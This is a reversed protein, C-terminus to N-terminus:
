PSRREGLPLQAARDTRHSSRAARMVTLPFVLYSWISRPPRVGDLGVDPFEDPAPFYATGFMRDWISFIPAFNKGFHRPEISHHIRHFRSDVIIRWLPGLNVRTPSHILIAWISILFSAAFPLAYSDLRILSFHLSHVLFSMGGQLPHNFSNAAHLESVSHHVAHVPWLFRHEFRHEWYNIFDYSLVLYIIVLVPSLGSLDLVPDIQLQQWLAQLPIGVMAATVPVTMYILFGPLREHLGYRVRPSVIEIVVCTALVVFIPWAAILYGHGFDIIDKM